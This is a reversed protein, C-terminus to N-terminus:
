CTMRVSLILCVKLSYNFAVFNFGNDTKLSLSLRQDFSNIFSHLHIKMIGYMTMPHTWLFAMKLIFEIISRLLQFGVM